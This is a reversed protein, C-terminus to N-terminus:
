PGAGDATASEHDASTALETRDPGARRARHLAREAARVAAAGGAPGVQAVGASLGAGAQAPPRTRQWTRRVADLRRVLLVPAPGRVLCAIRDPGSRGSCDQGRLSHRLLQGVARLTADRAGGGAPVDPPSADDLALLCVVDGDQAAGVRRMWARRNLLGTPVDTEAEAERQADRRLRDVVTRADEVFGPLVAELRLAALSVPDAWPLLPEGTGLSVDLPLPGDEVLRAPLLAGGLDHVLTAVVAAVQRPDDATLLARTAALLPLLAQEDAPGDAPPYGRGAGTPLRSWDAGSREGALLAPPLGDDDRSLEV